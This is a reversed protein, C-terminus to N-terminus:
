IPNKVQQAIVPVGEAQTKLGHLCSACSWDVCVGRGGGGLVCMCRRHKLTKFQALPLPGASVALPPSVPQIPLFRSPCWVQASCEQEQTAAWCKPAPSQGAPGVSRNNVQAGTGKVRQLHSSLVLNREESSPVKHVRTM